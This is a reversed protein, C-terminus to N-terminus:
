DITIELEDDGADADRNLQFEITDIQIDNRNGEQPNVIQWKPADVSVRNGADGFSLSLPSETSDLWDGYVDSTAVLSSEPDITGTVLRNTILASCYGTIDSPDERLIVANGLDLTMQSIKPSWASGGITLGANAFRPPLTSPYNPAILAVDSPTDWLGTFTFVVAVPQGAIFTFVANGMCGRLRKFQGDQYSGITITKVGAATGPPASVPAYVDGTAVLGCAPLFTTAWAPLPDGGILHISFTATGGRAGLVGPLPSFVGQGERQIMEINAQVETGFVNFLGDSGSLNEATGPVAEIKAALVRRRRLLPTSM